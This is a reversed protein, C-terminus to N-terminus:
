TVVAPTATLCPVLALQGRDGRVSAPAAGAGGRRVKSILQGHDTCHTKCQSCTYIKDGSLYQSAPPLPQTVLHPLCPNAPGGGRRQPDRPARQRAEPCVQKFLVGM